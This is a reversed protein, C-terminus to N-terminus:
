QESFVLFLCVSSPIHASNFVVEAAVEEVLFYEDQDEKVKYLM